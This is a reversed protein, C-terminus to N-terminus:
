AKTHMESLGSTIAYAYMALPFIYCLKTGPQMHKLLNGAEVACGATAGAAVNGLAVRWAPVGIQKAVQKASTAEREDATAIVFQLNSCPKRSAQDGSCATYRIFQRAKAAAAHHCTVNAGQKRINYAQQPLTLSAFPARHRFAQVSQRHQDPMLVATKDSQPACIVLGKCVGFRHAPLSDPGPECRHQLLKRRAYFAM